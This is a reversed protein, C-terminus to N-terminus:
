VRVLVTVDRQGDPMREPASNEIGVMFSHPAASNMFAPQVRAGSAKDGDPM